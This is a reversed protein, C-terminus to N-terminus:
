SADGVRSGIEAAIRQAWDGLSEGRFADEIDWCEHRARLLEERQRATPEHGNLSTLWAELEGLQRGIEWAESPLEENNRLAAEASNTKGAEASDIGRKQPIYEGGGLSQSGVSKQSDPCVIGTDEEGTPLSDDIIEENCGKSEPLRDTDPKVGVFAADRDDYVVLYIRRKKNLPNVRREIYGWTALHTLATSLNTYNCGIMEALRKNGAWCGQGQKRPDSMRDHIAIATLLRLHLGTLRADGVARAPVAGFIHKAAAM